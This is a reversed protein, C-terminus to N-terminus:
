RQLAALSFPWIGDGLLGSLASAVTAAIVVSCFIVIMQNKQM